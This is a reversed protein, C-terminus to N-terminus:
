VAKMSETGQEPANVEVEGPETGVVHKASKEEKPIIQLNNTRGPNKKIMSDYVQRAADVDACSLTTVFSQGSKLIIVTGANEASPHHAAIEGPMVRGTVIKHDYETRTETERNFLGKSRKVTRAKSVVFPIELFPNM